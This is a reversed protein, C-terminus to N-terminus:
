SRRRRLLTVLALLGLAEAPAVACKKESPPAGANCVLCEYSVRTPPPGNSYDNRTCTSAGCTGDSKDDRVCADGAKKGNCGSSDAPPIDAWASSAALAFLLVFRKM